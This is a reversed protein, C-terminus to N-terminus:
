VRITQKLDYKISLLPELYFRVEWNKLELHILKCRVNRCEFKGSNNLRHLPRKCLPCKFKINPPSKGRFYLSVKNRNENLWIGFIDDFMDFAWLHWLRILFCIMGTIEPIINAGGYCGEDGQNM